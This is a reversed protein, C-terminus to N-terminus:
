GRPSPREGELQSKEESVVTWLQSVVSEARIKDRAYLMDALVVYSRREGTASMDTAAPVHKGLRERATVM